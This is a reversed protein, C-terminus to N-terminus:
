YPLTPSSPSNPKTPTILQDSQPAIKGHTDMMEFMLCCKLRGCVGLLRPDEIPLALKKAQKASIPQMDTLFSACCLVLGCTDIGGLRRAEERVGVQRMEIRGGFRRALDRVLERFDIRDEATYVFTLQRRDMVGYVEVLKLPINLEAAKARCYAAAERSLQELRNILATEESDPKRLISKMVRMPPIFPTSYPEMYVIGYTVENEVEILVPDGNRLSVGASDLKRVEGRNRVKVGVLRVSTPYAHALQAVLTSEM